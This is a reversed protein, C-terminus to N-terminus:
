LNANKALSPFLLHAEPTTRVAEFVAQQVMDALPGTQPCIIRVSGDQVFRLEYAHQLLRAVQELQDVDFGAARRQARFGALRRLRKEQALSSEEQTLSKVLEMKEKETAGRCFDLLLAHDEALLSPYGSRTLQEYDEM